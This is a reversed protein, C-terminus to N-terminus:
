LAIKSPVPRCHINGHTVPAERVVAANSRCCVSIEVVGSIRTPSATANANRAPRNLMPPWPWYVTPPIVATHIPEDNAPMGGTSCMVIATTAAPSAPAAQAPRAPSRFAVSPTLSTIEVIMSLQIAIQPPTQSNPRPPGSCSGCWFDTGTELVTTLEALSGTNQPLAASWPSCMPSNM